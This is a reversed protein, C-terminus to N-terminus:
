KSHGIPSLISPKHGTWFYSTLSSTHREFIETLRRLLFLPSSISRGARFGFQQPQLHSDLARFLRIQLLFACLKYISNAVSIPRYSSPSRSNKNNGRYLMIIKAIRWHAPAVKQTFCDNFHDLLLRKMSHPLLGLAEMPLADPGPARGTRTKRFAFYLDTMTFPADLELRTPPLSDQLLTPLPIGM